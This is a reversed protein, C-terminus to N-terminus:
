LSVRIALFFDVRLAARRDVPFDVFFLVFFDERRLLLPPPPFRPPRPRLVFFVAFRAVLVVFFAV